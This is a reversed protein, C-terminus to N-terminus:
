GFIKGLLWFWGFTLAIPILCTVVVSTLLFVDRISLAPHKSRVWMKPLKPKPFWIKRHRREALWDNVEGQIVWGLIFIELSACIIFIGLAMYWLWIM